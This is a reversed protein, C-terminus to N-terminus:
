VFDDIKNGISPLQANFDLKPTFRASGGNVREMTIMRGHQDKFTVFTRHTYAPKQQQAKAGIERLREKALNSLDVIDQQQEQLRGLEVSLYAGSGVLPMLPASGSSIVSLLDSM